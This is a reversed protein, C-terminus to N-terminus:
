SARQQPRKGNWAASAAKEGKLRFLEAISIGAAQEVAEDVDLVPRNTLRALAQGILSKGSGPMGILVINQTERRLLCLIRENETEPIERNFFLEEAAKAQAVLMPLGDSYPLGLQEARLLLATRRPNYILDM